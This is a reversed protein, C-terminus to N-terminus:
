PLVFEFFKYKSSKSSKYNIPFNKVLASEPSTKTLTKINEISQLLIVNIQRKKVKIINQKYSNLNDTPKATHTILPTEGVSRASGDPNKDSLLYTQYNTWEREQLEGKKDVYFEIFSDNFKSSQIIKYNKEITDDLIPNNYSTNFIDSTSGINYKSFYSFLFCIM